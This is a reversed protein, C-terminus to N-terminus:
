EREDVYRVVYVRSSGLGPLRIVQSPKGDNGPLLLGAEILINKVTKEDFGQCVEKRFTQPLVPFGRGEKIGSRYFGARKPVRQDVTASIDEFRSAGQMEFFGRIQALIAREKRNGRRGWDSVTADPEPVRVWCCSLLLAGLLLFM